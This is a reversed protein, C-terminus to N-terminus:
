QRLLIGARPESDVPAHAVVLGVDWNVPACSASRIISMKLGYLHSGHFNLVPRLKKLGMCGNEVVVM